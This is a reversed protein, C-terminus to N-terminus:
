AEQLCRTLCFIRLTTVKGFLFFFNFFTQVGNIKELFILPGKLDCLMVPIKSKVKREGGGGGM